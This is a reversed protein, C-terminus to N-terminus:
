TMFVIQELLVKSQQLANENLTHSKTDQPTVSFLPFSVSM